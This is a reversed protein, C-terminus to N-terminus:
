WQFSAGVMPGSFNLDIISAGSEPEYDLYRYNFVVAGWDFGYGIGAMAQWTFDSDGTGMDLHYPIFWRGDAGLFTHGKLGVIADWNTASVAGSGSRGPLELGDINGSFTWDLTQEIDLMRAGFLLDVSNRANESLSYTAALTWVWSKLDYNTDVAVDAPLGVQGVTLERVGSKAAGEDLYLVDTFVGWSGKRAQLAGMFTFDLNDLLTDADVEIVPGAAGSPFQTTAELNPLWAYITARWQWADPESQAQSAVPLVAAAVILLVTASRARRARRRSPFATSLCNM